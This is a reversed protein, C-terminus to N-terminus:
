PYFRHRDAALPRLQSLSRLRQPVIPDVMAQLEILPRWFSDTTCFFLRWQTYFCLSAMLIFPFSIEPPYQHRTVVFEKVTIDYELFTIWCHFKRAIYYVLMRFLLIILY